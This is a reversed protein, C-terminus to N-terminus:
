IQVFFDLLPDRLTLSLQKKHRRKKHPRDKRTKIDDRIVDPKNNLDTTNALKALTGSTATQYLVTGDSGLVTIIYGYFKNGMTQSHDRRGVDISRSISEISVPAFDVYVVRTDLASISVKKRAFLRPDGSGSAPKSFYEVQLKLDRLSTGPKSKRLAVRVRRLDSKVRSDVTGIFKDREFSESGKDSSEWLKIYVESSFPSNESKSLKKENFRVGEQNQAPAGPPTVTTGDAHSVVDTAASIRESKINATNQRNKSNDPEVKSGGEVREIENRAVFADDFKGQKTLEQQLATLRAVYQERLTEVKSNKVAKLKEAQSRYRDQLSRIESSSSSAGSLTSSGQFRKVEKNIVEWDNLNGSAQSKVLLDQLNNTYKVSWSLAARSFETAYQEATGDYIKRYKEILQNDTSEAWSLTSGLMLLAFILKNM